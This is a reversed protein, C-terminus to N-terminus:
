FIFRTLKVSLLNYDNFSCFTFFILHERKLAALYIQFLTRKDYKLAKKYELDNLEYDSYKIKKIRESEKKNYTNQKKIKIKNFLPNELINIKSNSNSYIQINNDSSNKSNLDNKGKDANFVLKHKLNM